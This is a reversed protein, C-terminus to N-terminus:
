TSLYAEAELKSSELFSREKEVVKVRNLKENRETSLQDLTKEAEEIKTVYQNSGIIDELYELLGEEGVAQAKPKMMSIQEVEGQLILFRNNDLDIGRGRLLTTVETFSSPTSDIYYKSSNNRHATRTVVFQSGPVPTYGDESSADDLIDQFYVSVRATDLDPYEASRHILDSM